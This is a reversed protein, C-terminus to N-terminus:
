LWCIQGSQDVSDGHLDEDLGKGPLGDRKLNLGRVGDLIDLCFDLVFFTSHVELSM